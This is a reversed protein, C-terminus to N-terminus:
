KERFARHISKRFPDIFYELATREGTRLMVTAPMGPVLKVDKLHQLESPDVEVRGAYYSIGTKQDVITDASLMVLTGKVPPVSRTNYPTLTVEAPMGVKLVDIDKPELRTEVVLTDNDPILDMIPKGPEVVGGVTAYVMNVVYGSRPARIDVRSLSDKAARMRQEYEALKVNADRLQTVVENMMKNKTDSFQAEVESIQQYSQAIKAKFNGKNGEM